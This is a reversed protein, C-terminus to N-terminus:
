VGKVQECLVIREVTDKASMSDRDPLMEEGTMKPTDLSSYLIKGNCNDKRYQSREMNRFQNQVRYVKEIVNERFPM